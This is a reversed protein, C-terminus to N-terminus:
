EWVEIAVGKLNPFPYTIEDWVKHRTCDCIWAHLQFLIGQYFPDMIEMLSNLSNIVGFMKSIGLQLLHTLKRM